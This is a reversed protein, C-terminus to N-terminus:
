EYFGDEWLAGRIENQVNSNNIFEWIKCESKWTKLSYLRYFEQKDYVAIIRRCNALIYDLIGSRVSIIYEADGALDYLEQVSCRLEITDRLPVQDGAVNCYVKYGSKLFDKVIAEFVGTQIKMSGSYPNVIIFPSSANGVKGISNKIIHLKPNTKSDLHFANKKIIDVADCEACQKKQYYKVDVICLVGKEIMKSIKKEYFSNYLYASRINWIYSKSLAVISDIGMERYIFGVSGNCVVAYQESGIKRLYEHMNACAICQDGIGPAGVFILQHGAYQKVLKKIKVYGLISQILTKASIM